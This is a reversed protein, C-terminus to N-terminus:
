KPVATFGHAQYWPCEIEQYNAMVLGAQDLWKDLTTRPIPHLHVASVGDIYEHSGDSGKHQAEPPRYDNPVTVVIKGGPALHKMGEQLIAPVTSLQFHELCDGYVIRDFKQDGLPSLDRMDCLVDAKTQRGHIPDAQRLDLNVAGMGALDAPDDACGVNLISKAGLCAKLQYNFQCTVARNPSVYGLMFAEYWDVAREWDFRMRAEQMMVPRIKEVEEKASMGMWRCIESVFRAQILPDAPDGPILSGAIAHEGLAWVPSAVPIAGLAMAECHSSGFTERFTTPYCFIGSKAWELMLQPQPIRGLWHVGPQDAEKMIEDKAKQMWQFQPGLKVLVDINNFGYAIYLTADSVWERVRRFIKLLRLLGRDPSSAWMIRHPDRVQPNADAARILDMKIGNAAVQVKGKLAPHDSELSAKHSQCLAFLIDLKACREDTWTPYSEDESVLYLKQNTHDLSFHDLTPPHRFIMWHGPQSFDAMELPMWAVGNFDRVGKWPVPAYSNVDWGRLKLRKCLEIQATESQGIGRVDPTDPQWTEFFIPHFIHITNM